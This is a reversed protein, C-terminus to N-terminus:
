MKRWLSNVFYRRSDFFNQIVEFGSAAALKEIMELDYKQSIETQICEGKSFHIVDDTEAFTIEQDTTSVLFSSATGTQPDYLPAHTFGELHFDAGLERNFRTLLNLNFDRTHGQPDDYAKRIVDPDKKLDLGIFFLDDGSMVLNLESLFSISEMQNYNGLNSGLFLLVKRSPYEQSLNEIMHFYDGIRPELNLTPFQQKMAGALQLVANESIDVPIYKFQIGEELLDEILIKTKSGDGAGLEVLDITCRGHCFQSGIARKHIEFIETECDTLYYEPMRMIRQFIRSGEADYFYKSSIQKPSSKLGDLIELALPTQELIRQM